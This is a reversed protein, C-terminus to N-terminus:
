GKGNTKLDYKRVTEESFFQVTAGAIPKGELDICSGKVTGTAQAFVPPVCLGAVLALLM